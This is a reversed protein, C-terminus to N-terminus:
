FLGLFWGGCRVWGSRRTGQQDEVVVYYVTQGKSTTLFFPGRFFTRYEQRVIRYGNEDAWQHLLSGSRHFHWLIAVLGVVGFVLILLAPGPEMAAESTPSFEMTSAAPVLQWQGLRGEMGALTSDRRVGSRGFRVLAQDCREWQIAAGHTTEPPTYLERRGAQARSQLM